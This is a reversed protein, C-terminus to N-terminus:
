NMRVLRAPLQLYSACIETKNFEKSVKKNRQVGTSVPKHGMSAEEEQLNSVPNLGEVEGERLIAGQLDLHSLRGPHHFVGQVEDEPSLGVNHALPLDGYVTLKKLADIHFDV